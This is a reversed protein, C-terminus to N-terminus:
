PMQILQEPQPIRLYYNVTAINMIHDPAKLHAIELKLRNQMSEIQEREESLKTIAYGIDLCQVRCWTYVFLEGIFLVLFFISMGLPYGNSKSM